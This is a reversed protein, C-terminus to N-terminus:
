FDCYYLNGVQVCFDPRKGKGRWPRCARRQGWKNHRHWGNKGRQCSRHNGHVKTVLGSDPAAGAPANRIPAANAAHLSFALLGAAATTTLLKIM